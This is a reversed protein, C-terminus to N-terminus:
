GGVALTPRDSQAQLHLPHSRMLAMVGVQLDAASVLPRTPFHLQLRRDVRYRQILVCFPCDEAASGKECGLTALYESGCAACTVLDLSCHRALWIGDVHSALDLARDLTIRHPPDCIERYHSYAGLLAEPAPFGGNRLRRYGAMVVAAAAQELVTTRRHLWDVSGPSRGRPVTSRTPFALHRFESQPLGSLHEITSLRAGLDVCRKAISLAQLRRVMVVSM